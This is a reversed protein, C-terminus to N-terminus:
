EPTKKKKGGKKKKEKKEEMQIVEIGCRHHRQSLDKALSLYANLSAYKNLL